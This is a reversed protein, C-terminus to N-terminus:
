KKDQTDKPRKMVVYRIAREIEQFSKINHRYPNGQFYAIRIDGDQGMYEIMLWATTHLQKIRVSRIQSVPITVLTKDKSTYEISDQRVVLIDSGDALGSTIPSFLIAGFGPEKPSYSISNFTAPLTPPTLFKEFAEIDRKSFRMKTQATEAQDTLGENFHVSVFIPYDADPVVKEQRCPYHAKEGPELKKSLVCEPNPTPPAIRVKVWLRRESKNRVTFLLEPKGGPEGIVGGSSVEVWKSSFDAPGPGTAQQGACASLLLVVVAFAVGQRTM